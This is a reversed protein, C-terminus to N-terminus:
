FKIMEGFFTDLLYSGLLFLGISFFLLIPLFKFGSKEDGKLILGMILAGFISTSTLSVLAFTKIFDISIKITGVKIPIGQMEQLQPLEASIVSMNEVLMKVLFSSMAFLLPAGFAIAIFIFLVYMLVSASIERQIMQQERLDSAIQDLIDALKGGSRISVNVLDITKSLTESKISETMRNLSDTLSRGTMTEKGVRKIELALPGFEPRASLLLARDTTLGARINSSMLQLADPLVSEVFRAKSDISLLIWIYIIFQFVIFFLIFSLVLPLVKLTYTLYSALASFIIGFIFAFGLLKEPNIDINSYRVLQYFNKTIRKPLIRGISTYIDM